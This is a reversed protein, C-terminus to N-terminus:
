CVMKEKWSNLPKSKTWDFYCTNATLNYSFFSVRIWISFLLYCFWCVPNELINFFSGWTRFHVFRNIPKSLFVLFFGMIICYPGGIIKPDCTIVTILSPMWSLRIPESLITIKNNQQCFFDSWKVTLNNYLCLGKVTMMEELPGTRSYNSGVVVFKRYKRFNCRMLQLVTVKSLSLIISSISQLDNM